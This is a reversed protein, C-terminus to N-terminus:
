ESDVSDGWGNTLAQGQIYSRVGVLCDRLQSYKLEDRWQLQGVVIGPHVKRAQAFQVISARYYLPAKRAIFSALKEQPILYQAAETNAVHEIPPVESAPKRATLDVDIPAAHNHKIHVMEHLLTFWFNDIRDLRLSLAIAPTTADLWFAAGDIRTDKMAKVLVLRIGMGGLVQPVRRADEANAALMLVERVGDEFASPDFRAAPASEAMRWAGRYWAIQAATDTDYPTGKRAAVRVNPEDTIKSIGLFRCVALELEDTDDVNPLWGRRKLERIPTKNFLDARRKVDREKKAAVALEFAMQLNMWTQADQDFAEALSIATDATIGSKGQILNIVQRRSMSLVSALDDHTWGRADMEDQIYEGPAFPEAPVHITM